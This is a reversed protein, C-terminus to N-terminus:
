SQYCTLILVHDDKRHFTVVLGGSSRLRYEPPDRRTDVSELAVGERLASLVDTASIMRDGMRQLAHKTLFIKEPDFTAAANNAASAMSGILALVGERSLGAHLQAITFVGQEIGISIARLLNDLSREDKRNKLRKALIPLKEEVRSLLIALQGVPLVNDGKLTNCPACSPALNAHSLVDFTEQLGHSKKVANLQDPKESLLEPVLHDIVTEAFAITKRCHFCRRGHIDWITERLIPSLNQNSM